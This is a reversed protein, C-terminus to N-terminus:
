AVHSGFQVFTIQEAGVVREATNPDIPMFGGNMIMVAINLDFRYDPDV